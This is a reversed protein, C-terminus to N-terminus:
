YHGTVENAKTESLREGGLPELLTQCEPNEMQQMKWWKTHNKGGNIKNQKEM